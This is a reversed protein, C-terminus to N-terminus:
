GPAGGELLRRQLAQLVEPQELALALTTLTDSASFPSLMWLAQAGVFGWVRLVDLWPAVFEALGYRKLWAAWRNIEADLSREVGM